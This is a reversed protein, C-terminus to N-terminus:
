NSQKLGQEISRVRVRTTRKTQQEINNSQQEEQEINSM